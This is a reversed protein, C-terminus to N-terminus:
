CGGVMGPLNQLNTPVSASKTVSGSSSASTKKIATGGGLNKMDGKIGVLQVAQVAAVLVLAVLIGVILLNKNM